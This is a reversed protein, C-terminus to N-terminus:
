PSKNWAEQTLALDNDSRENSDTKPRSLKWRQLAILYSFILSGVMMAWWLYWLRTGSWGAKITDPESMSHPPMIHPVVVVNGHVWDGPAWFDVVGGDTCDYLHETILTQWLIACAIQSVALTLIFKAAFWGRHAALYGTFNLIACFNKM